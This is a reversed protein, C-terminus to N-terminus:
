QGCAERYTRAAPGAARAAERRPREAKAVLEAVDLPERAVRFGQLEYRVQEDMPDGAEVRVVVPVGPAVSDFLRTVDLGSRRALGAELLVLSVPTDLLQQLGDCVSQAFRAPIQHKLCQRGVSEALTRNSDIMLVRTM